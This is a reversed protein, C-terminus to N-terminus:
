ICEAFHHTPFRPRTSSHETVCRRLLLTFVKHPQPMGTLPKLLSVLFMFSKVDESVDESSFMKGKCISNSV